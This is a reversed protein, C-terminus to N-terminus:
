EYNRIEDLNILMGEFAYRALNAAAFGIDKQRHNFSVIEETNARILETLATKTLEFMMEESTM